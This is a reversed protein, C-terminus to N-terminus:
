KMRLKNKNIEIEYNDLTNINTKIYEKLKLIHKISKSIDSNEWEVPYFDGNNFVPKYQIIPTLYQGITEKEYKGLINILENYQNIKENNEIEEYELGINSANNFIKEFKKNYQNNLIIDEFELCECVNEIVMIGKKLFDITKEINYEVLIDYRLMLSEILENLSEITTLKLIQENINDISFDSEPNNIAYQKLLNGVLKEPKEISLTIEGSISNKIIKDFVVESNKVMFHAKNDDFYFEEFLTNNKDFVFNFNELEELSYRSFDKKTNFAIIEDELQYHKYFNIRNNKADNNVSYIERGNEAFIIQKKKPIDFSSINRLQVVEDQTRSIFHTWNKDAIVLFSRNYSLFLNDEILYNNNDNGLKINENIINNNKLISMLKRKNLTEKNDIIENILQFYNKNNM